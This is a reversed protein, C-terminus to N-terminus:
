WTKHVAVIGLPRSGLRKRQQSCETRNFLLGDQLCPVLAWICTKTKVTFSSSPLSDKQAKTMSVIKWFRFAFLSDASTVSRLLLCSRVPSASGPKRFYTSSEVLSMTNFLGAGHWLSTSLQIIAYKSVNTMRSTFLTTFRDFNTSKIKVAQLRYDRVKWELLWGQWTPATCFQCWILLSQRYIGAVLRPPLM